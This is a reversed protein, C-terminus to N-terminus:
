IDKGLVNILMAVLLSSDIGGSLFAGIPVDSVMHEQLSKTMVNVTNELAVQESWDTSIREWNWFRGKRIGKSTLKLWTGPELEYIDSFFTSPLLPYGLVLFDSLAQFNIRRPNEEFSLIAKLESGFYFGNEGAYYYFPKIGTRDRAMFLEHEDIDYIAFAFMGHIRDLCMKGWQKYAELLVETDSNTRFCHGM